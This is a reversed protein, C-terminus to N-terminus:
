FVVRLSPDRTQEARVQAQEAEPVVELAVVTDVPDPIRYTAQIPRRLNLFLDDPEGFTQVNPNWFDGVVAEHGTTLLRPNRVKGRLGRLTLHGMPQETIHAYLTKGDASLTWRGWDPRELDAAGCGYVSAANVKLWQGVQDQLAIADALLEGRATPAFNLTLNGSKSVCNILARIIDPATKAERDGDHSSWSNTQTIWLDWPVRQGHANRMAGHPSNLECTDFDGAWPPPDAAKMNGAAASSLRDNLVLDPQLSRIMEVLEAAKWKEGTYEYYSFDFLLLDITGYNTLLERVQGHMYEVYRDWDHAQGKLYADRRLPHQRDGFAPCGPHRWDVLSYYLGVRLGADAFAEVYERVLDRGAPSHVSTYDTLQSDFLCFGDHHKTTLIGYGAGMAKAAEAWARPDYRDATFGDFYPQYDALSMQEKSRVWEGRAAISYLGWHYSVGLRANLWWDLRAPTPAYEAAPNM